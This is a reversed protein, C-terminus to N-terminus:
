ATISCAIKLLIRSYLFLGEFSFTSIYFDFEVLSVVDGGLLKVQVVDLSHESLPIRICSQLLFVYERKFSNLDEEM